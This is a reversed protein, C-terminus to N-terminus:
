SSARRYTSYMHVSKPIGERRDFLFLTQQNVEEEAKLRLFGVMPNPRDDGKPELGCESPVPSVGPSSENTERTPSHGPWHPGMPSRTMATRVVAPEGGRTTRPRCRVSDTADTGVPAVLMFGGVFPGLTRKVGAQLRPYASTIEIVRTRKDFSRCVAISVRPLASLALPPIQVWSTEIVLRTCTGGM